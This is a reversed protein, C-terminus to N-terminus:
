VAHLFIKGPFFRSDGIRLNINVTLRPILSSLVHQLGPQLPLCGGPHVSLWFFLVQPEKHSTLVPDNVKGNDFQM